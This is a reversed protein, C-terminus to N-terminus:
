DSSVPALRTFPQELAFHASEFEDRAQAFDWGPM